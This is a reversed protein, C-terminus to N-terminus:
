SAPHTQERWDELVFRVVSSGAVLGCGDLGDGVDVLVPGFNIFSM